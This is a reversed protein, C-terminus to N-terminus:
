LVCTVSLGQIYFINLNLYDRYSSTSKFKHAREYDDEDETRRVQEISLVPLATLVEGIGEARGPEQVIAAIDGRRWVNYKVIREM